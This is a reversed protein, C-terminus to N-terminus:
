SPFFLPIKSADTFLKSTYTSAANEVISRTTKRPTAIKALFKRVVIITGCVLVVGGIISGCIILALVLKSGPIHKHHHPLIGVALAENRCFSFPHQTRDGTALCNNSYRVIRHKPGTLLCSPLRGSLLNTSLDVFDLGANCQNDEFLMGTLKNGAVNLYTISPLSLLSPPFPGMFRNSSIDMHELQHYSQVKEPIGATFKNNRLVISQIKSSVQPFKPGLANDELDLVQLNKVGSLDPVDGTFNNRSLSLVRLSHLSGLMDPLRGELSNNKVSLVALVVLSGLGNPLRGTFKNGDLILSQLSTLSSIERPINSHFFNSSLDLIELSSLRSIKSPLPGYLGLSVLRLVKLSPLEVLTTVFSDISFNHLQSAGLSGIIHLQTINGEYCIVTVSSSPETNCFDTDNNWNSLVNPYNLLNRIRSLINAQSSSESISISLLLVLLVLLNKLGLHKEMVWFLVLFFQSIYM